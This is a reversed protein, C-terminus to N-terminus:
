ACASGAAAVVSGDAAIDFLASEERLFQDTVLVAENVPAGGKMMTYAEVAVELTRRDADCALGSAQEAAEIGEEAQEIPAIAAPGGDDGGSCAAAGTAAALLSAIAFSRKLKRTSQRM